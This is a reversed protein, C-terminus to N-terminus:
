ENKKIKETLFERLDRFWGITKGKCIIEGNPMLLVQLYCVSIEKPNDIM